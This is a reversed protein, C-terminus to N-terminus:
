QRSALLVIRQRDSVVVGGPAEITVAFLTPEFVRLKAQIPVLTRGDSSVDFVGGDVPHREDRRADFIWLQYQSSAPDNAPLGDILMVGQQRQTSWVIDGGVQSLSERPSTWAIQLRDPAESVLSERVAVLDEEVLTRPAQLWLFAALLLAAAAALWGAYGLAGSGAGRPRIANEEPRGEATEGAFYRHADQLLTEKLDTPCDKREQLVAVELAAALREFGDEDVDPYRPLLRALEEEQSAELSGTARAILLEELRGKELDTM